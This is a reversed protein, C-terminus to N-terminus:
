IEPREHDVDASQGKKLGFKVGVRERFYHVRDSTVRLQPFDEQDLHLTYIYSCAKPFVERGWTSVAVINGHNWLPM